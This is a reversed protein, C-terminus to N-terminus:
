NLDEDHPNQEFRNINGKRGKENIGPVYDKDFIHYDPNLALLAKVCWEVDPLHGADYTLDRPDEKM